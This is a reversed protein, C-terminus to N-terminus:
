GVIIEAKSCPGHDFLSADENDNLLVQSLQLLREVACRANWESVITNYAAEGLTRQKEPHDLLDEIRDCLMDVDGSRYILGNEGDELLFPVSGIAHSAVVACGSNMAENLVAGWGEGQDSTFLFIAVREMHERVQEPSMSGLMTVCDELGYRVIMQRIIDEMPGTGIMDLHFDYGQAKLNRAAEVPVEPHKWNLMRGVWLLRNTQKGQLLQEISEYKITEPFYGWKYCRNKYNGFRAADAATYASACLMYLPYRQFRGHHLWAAAADRFWRKLPTGTKYFRENYKFTLKKQKLRNQILADPASGIIVVDSNELVEYARKRQEESQYSRIEYPPIEDMKWGLQMREAEMGETSIFHFDEGLERCMATCFSTQHHNLYNSVVAIKM